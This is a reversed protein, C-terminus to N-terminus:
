SRQRGDLLGLQRAREVAESRGSVALKRYISMTHTKVTNRSVYLHEGIEVLSRHTPLQELVRQEAATLAVVGASRRHREVEARLLEASERLVMPPVEVALLEDVLALQREAEGPDRRRLAAELLM